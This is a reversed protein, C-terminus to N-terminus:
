NAKMDMGTSQLIGRCSAKYVKRWYHEPQLSMWIQHSMKSNHPHAKHISVFKSKSVKM